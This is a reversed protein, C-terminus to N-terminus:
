AESVELRKIRNEHNAVAKKIETTDALIKANSDELSGMRSDLSTMRLEVMTIRELTRGLTIRTDDADKRLGVQGEAVIRIEGRFSEILAGVQTNTFGSDKKSM